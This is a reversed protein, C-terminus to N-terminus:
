KGLVNPLKIVYASNFEPNPRGRNGAAIALTKEDPALAMHYFVGMQLTDAAVLQGTQWNWAALFGKNPPADGASLLFKADKTFRLNYVWGPHSQVPMMPATKIAPNPIDRVVTGDAVKWIKIVRELGGSGSALFQGDPTFAATYVPEQHGKEFEKVKYAKFERVLNGSAVDYLKMSNDMSCTLVQKGDATFVLSYITDPQNNKGPHAAIEKAQANKVLDFFRIKGDHGGTALLTGNPQFAVADVNNPHPFNRTPTPSALKWAQVSAASSATFMTANDPGITVDGLVGEAAFSQVPKLFEPPLPQGPNFFVGFATMDKAASTAVLAVGTPNAPPVGTFALSKAPGALKANALEKADNFGYVRLIGDDGALAALQLNKSVAAVRGVASGVFTRELNGNGVNWLKANKDTGATIVHTQNAVMSVAHVPGADAQVQRVLTLSELRIEKGAASLIQNGQPNFVVGAVPEAQPFFQWEKSTPLDWTRSRKDDCATAIKTKDPSFSFGRVDAPHVLSALEKGDALNWVKVTKGSAAAVWQYDRSFGVAHMNEPLPGFSKLVASKALDWLKVTKDAGATLLQTGTNHVQLTVAGTPHVPWANQVHADQLRVTKDLSASVLTRNDALFALQKVPGAHDTLNQLNQGTALDFVRQVTASGETVSVALRQGNSSLALAQVPGDVTIVKFPKEEPKGPVNNWVKVIKDAGASAFRSADASAVLHHLAGEPNQLSRTEKGDAAWFRIAKDDGASLIEGRSNFLAQRIPGVSKKAWVVGANWLRAQRDASATVFRKADLTAVSLVPGEHAFLEMLQGTVDFLRAFKDTGGVLIRSGDPAIALGKAEVPLTVTALEKNDPLNWIKVSKDALAALKTGDKSLTLASIGGTHPLTAKLAGDALNWIHVVKDAGASALLSGNALFALGTIAGKHGTLSKAEKGDATKYLKLSGDAGGAVVSQGDPSFAVAQGPGTLPIKQLIKADGLNWVHLMKDASVGAVFRNDASLAIATSLQPSGGFDREKAGNALTWTRLVKDNSVTLLRNGDNSVVAAIVQDPHLMTKPAVLPLQWLKLSGDEGASLIQTNNPHIAVASVPAAHATLIDSEKGTQQNWIRVTHDASGSVLLQGNASLAVSTVPGTHGPFQREVTPMPTATNWIRVLKDSSGTVIKKGDAFPVVALVADPHTVTKSPLRPLLWSRALGDTGATFLQGQPSFATSTVAGAHAVWNSTQKPDASNWVFVRQDASGAAVLGNTAAQALSVVPANAGEFAKVPTPAGGTAYQRVVKDDGAVVFQAMDPSTALVKTPTTPGTAVKAAPLPLTWFKLFGDEGVSYAAANNPHLTVGNVTGLHAGVVGLSQGNAVNWFRVTRDVGASALTAGNGSFSVSTVAGQHGDLKFLEKFDTAQLIKVTGSKEAIALKTGDPTLAVATAEGSTKLSRLASPLPVDWVKLTNDVSGSALMQGDPSFAVSLVMKQHGPQGGYSKVEKGTALEWLKITNDLSGTALYKGDPSYAVSYVADAHGKLKFVVEPGASKEQATLPLLVAVMVLPALWRFSRAM